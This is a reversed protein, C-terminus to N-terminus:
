ILDFLFFFGLLCLGVLKCCFDLGIALCNGEENKPIIMFRTTFVVGERFLGERLGTPSRPNKNKKTKEHKKKKTKALILTRTKKKNKRTTKKCEVKKKEESSNGEEKGGRKEKKGRGCSFFVMSREERRPILPHARERKLFEWAM